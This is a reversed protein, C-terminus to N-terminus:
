FTNIEQTDPDVNLYKSRLQTSLKKLWGYADEVTKFEDPNLLACTAPTLISQSLIQQLDVPTGRRFQGGRQEFRGAANRAAEVSRRAIYELIITDTSDYPGKRIPRISYDSKCYATGSYAIRLPRVM